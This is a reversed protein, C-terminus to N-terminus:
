MKEKYIESWKKDEVLVHEILWENLTNLLNLIETNQDRDIEDIDLEYIYDIFDNHAIKHKFFASYQIQFLIKEEEEFHYKVYSRLENVIEVIEDFKDIYDPLELMKEAEEALDFLIKHQTDIIDIGIRYSDKWQIM